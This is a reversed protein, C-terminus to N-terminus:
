SRTLTPVVPARTAGFFRIRPRAGLDREATYYRWADMGHNDKDVPEEPPAKREAAAATVPKAWVYGVIEEITSTPKHADALSQDVEVVAGRMFRVRPHGDAAPRLRAQNAQIGELKAKYAASTSVGTEREFVVRGEADHDALVRRPRPETWRRGHYAFREAGPPHVYGDIPESVCAMVSAAHEDVTRGTMYVERYLYSRGDPDEAWFQCVFPNTYGFDLSWYRPWDDPVKFWDVLHLAPDYGDYVVGEAAVWLGKRYRLFRVGTLKDLVGEIYAKGRDTMQGADGFYVPNDEHRSEYLRCDGRECREYLWHTPREPNTDAVLQQYPMVGNRLRTTVSEWDEATLEIAEQVYVMDYESSMIRTPKDLGGIVIVSGNDYRYQPPEEASGGYYTVTGNALAEKVVYTRWTVLATSGLSVLTKRLILGRMGSYKLAAAHLKELCARSKGTGAPGSMLIEGFRDEFLRVASGRPRYRHVYATTVVVSPAGPAGPTRPVGAQMLRM